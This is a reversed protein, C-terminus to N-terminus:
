KGIKESIEKPLSEVVPKEYDTLRMEVTLTYSKGDLAFVRVARLEILRSEKESVRLVTTSKTKDPPPLVTQAKWTGPGDFANAYNSFDADLESITFLAAGDARTVKPSKPLQMALFMLNTELCNRTLDVIKHLDVNQAKVEDTFEGKKWEIPQIFDGEVWPGGDKYRSYAKRTKGLIVHESAHGDRDSLKIWVADRLGAKPESPWLEIHFADVEKGDRELTIDALAHARGSQGLARKLLDTDQILILLVYLM